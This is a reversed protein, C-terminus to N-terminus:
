SHSTGAGDNARKNYLTMSHFHTRLQSVGVGPATALTYVSSPKLENVLEDVQKKTPHTPYLAIFQTKERDDANIIDHLGRGTEKTYMVSCFQRNILKMCSHLDYVVRLHFHNEDQNHIDTYDASDESYFFMDANSKTFNREYLLDVVKVHDTHPLPLIKVLEAFCLEYIDRTIVFRIDDQWTHIKEVLKTIFGEMGTRFRVSIINENEDEDDSHYFSDNYRSPPPMLKSQVWVTVKAMTESRPTLEKKL